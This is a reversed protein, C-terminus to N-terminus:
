TSSWACPTSGSGPAWARQSHGHRLAGVGRGRLRLIRHVIGILYVAQRRSCGEKCPVGCPTTSVPLSPHRGTARTLLKLRGDQTRQRHLTRPSVHLSAPAPSRALVGRGGGVGESVRSVPNETCYLSHLYPTGSLSFATSFPLPACAIPWLLGPSQHTPAGWSACVNAGPNVSCVLPLRGCHQLPKVRGSKPLPCSVRFVCAGRRM